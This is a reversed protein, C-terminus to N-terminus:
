MMIASIICRDVQGGNKEMIQQVIDGEKYSIIDTAGYELALKVCEPRTGIAFIRGAGLLKAGAVAMLGVPGIGIVVVTDGFHVNANEAAHLGTSMMDVTMLADELSIDEPMHVLNANANNVKFHEAFVGDHTIM